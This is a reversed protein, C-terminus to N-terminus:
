NKMFISFVEKEQGSPERGLLERYIDMPTTNLYEAITEKIEPDMEVFLKTASVGGLQIRKWWTPGMTAIRAADLLERATYENTPDFPRNNREKKEKVKKEIDARTKNLKYMMYTAPVALAGAIIPAKIEYATKWYNSANCQATLILAIALSMVMARFAKM